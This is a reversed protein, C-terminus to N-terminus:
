QVWAPSWETGPIWYWGYAPSNEWRGYHFPAWGWKYNSVWTWGYETYVWYGNSAYPQFGAGTNPVWIYGYTPDDIWIGYPSLQDYFVQYSVSGQAISKKPICFSLLIAIAISIFKFKTKM